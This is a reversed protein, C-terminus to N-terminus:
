EESEKASEKVQIPVLIGYSSFKKVLKNFHIKQISEFIKADPEDNDKSIDLYCNNELDYKTNNRFKLRVFGTTGIAVDISLLKKPTLLEAM